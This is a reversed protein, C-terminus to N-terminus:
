IVGCHGPFIVSCLAFFLTFTLLQLTTHFVLKPAHWSWTSNSEYCSHSYVGSQLVSLVPGAVHQPPPLLEHTKRGRGHPSTCLFWDMPLCKKWQQLWKTLYGTFSGERMSRYAAVNFCVLNDSFSFSFCSHVHFSELPSYNFIYTSLKLNFFLFRFWVLCTIFWLIIM